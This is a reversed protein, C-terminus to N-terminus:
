LLSRPSQRSPALCPPWPFSTCHPERHALSFGCLLHGSAPRRTQQAERHILAPALAAAPPLTPHPTNPHQQFHQAGAAIYVSYGFGSARLALILPFSAMVATGRSGDQPSSGVRLELASGGAGSSYLVDSPFGAYWHEDSSGKEERGLNDEPSSGCHLREGLWLM